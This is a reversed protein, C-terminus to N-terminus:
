IMFITHLYIRLIHAILGLSFRTDKIYLYQKLKCSVSFPLNLIFNWFNRMSYPIFYKGDYIFLFERYTYLSKHCLFPAFASRPPM